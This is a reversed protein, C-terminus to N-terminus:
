RNLLEIIRLLDSESNFNVVIKGNGKDTKRIEVKTALRDGLHEKFVFEQESLSPSTSKAQRTPIENDKEISEGRLLAEIDRVSLQEKIIRECLEIQLEISGASVLARAHGM